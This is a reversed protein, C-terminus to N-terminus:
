SPIIMRVYNNAVFYDRYRKFTGSITDIVRHIPTKKDFNVIPPNPPTKVVEKDKNTNTTGKKKLFEKEGNNGIEIEEYLLKKQLLHLWM